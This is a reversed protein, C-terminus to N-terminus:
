REINYYHHNQNKNFVSKILIVRKSEQMIILFFVHWVVKKVSIDQGITFPMMNKLVLHYQINLEIMYELLDIQNISGLVGILTKYSIVYILINKYSKRDLFIDAFDFNEIKIIDNFYYWARNKINIEKLNNM